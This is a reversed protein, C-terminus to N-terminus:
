SNNSQGQEIEDLVFDCVSYTYVDKGLNFAYGTYSKAGRNKIEQVVEKRVQKTYDAVLKELDVKQCFRSYFEDAHCTAERKIFRFDSCEHSSEGCQLNYYYLQTGNPEIVMSDHIDLGFMRPKSNKIGNDKIFIIPVYKPMDELKEIKYTEQM